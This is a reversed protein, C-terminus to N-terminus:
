KKKHNKFWEVQEKRSLSIFEKWLSDDINRVGKDTLSQEWSERNSFKSLIGTKAFAHIMPKYEKFRHKKPGHKKHPGGSSVKKGKGKAM